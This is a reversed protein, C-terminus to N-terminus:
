CELGHWVAAQWATTIEGNGSGTKRRVTCPNKFKSAKEWTRQRLKEGQWLRNKGSQVHTKLNREM